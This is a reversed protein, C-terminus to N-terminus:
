YTILEEPYPLLLLDISVTEGSPVAIKTFLVPRKLFDVWVLLEYDGPALSLVLPSNPQFVHVASEEHRDGTTADFPVFSMQTFWDILGVNRDSIEVNETIESGGLGVLVTAGIIMLAFVCRAVSRAQRM